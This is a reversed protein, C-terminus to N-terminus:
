ICCYVGGNTERSLQVYLLSHKHLVVSDHLCVCHSLFTSDYQFSFNQSFYLLMFRVFIYIKFNFFSFGVCLLIDSLTDFFTYCM